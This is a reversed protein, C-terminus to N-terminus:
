RERLAPFVIKSGGCCSVLSEPTLISRRSSTGRSRQWCAEGGPRERVEGKLNGHKDRTTIIEKIMQPPGPPTCIRLMNEFEEAVAAKAEPDHAVQAMWDDGEFSVVSVRPSKTRKRVSPPRAREQALLSKLRQLERRAEMEEEIGSWQGKDNFIAAEAAKQRAEAEMIQDSLFM